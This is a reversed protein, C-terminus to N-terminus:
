LTAATPACEGKGILQNYTLRKGTVGRLIETFRGGDLWIFVPWFFSLSSDHRLSEEDGVPTPVQRVSRGTEAGWCYCTRDSIQGLIDDHQASAGAM